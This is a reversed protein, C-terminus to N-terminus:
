NPGGIHWLADSIDREIAQFIAELAESSGAEYYVTDGTTAKAIDELSGYDASNSSFGIVYTKIAENTGLKYSKVLQGVIDVYETGWPDLSGGDGAYRGSSYTTNYNSIENNNISNDGTFYTVDYKRYYYKTNWWGSSGYYEYKEGSANTYTDGKYNYFWIEDLDVRNVSAFTTVGDVLIILFNKNTKNKNEEEENFDKIKYYARRIGDGTNTGGGASLNNVKTTLGTNTANNVRAKLMLESGNATSDFPNISVSINSYEALRDILRNAEIKLKKLKSWKDSNSSNDDASSGNLKYKMSGSKDLVMAVAAQANSVEDIRSDFRYALVNATEAYSRDIVQLSNNSELESEITNSKTGDYITLRYRLLRDIDSATDKTFELDLTVDSLGKFVEKADHVKTSSNWKYEMLKTKSSDLMIYNWEDTLNNPDDRHLVFTAASDRITTNIKQSMLRVNSQVDFEDYTLQTNKMGFVMLNTGTAIVISTLAIALILEILTFGKRKRM